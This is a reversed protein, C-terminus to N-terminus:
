VTGDVATSSGNIVLTGRPTNITINVSGSNALQAPTITTGGVVLDQLGDLTKFAVYSNVIDSDDPSSGSDLGSEYVMEETGPNADNDPINLIVGDDAGNITITLTTHTRNGDDDTITYTFVDTLTQGDGIGQVALNSNDLTYSYSGDAAINVSGYSGAVGAGVSGTGNVGTSGAAVGTIPTANADAGITDAGDTVVNGTVTNPVDDELISNTDAVAIPADDTVTVTIGASTSALDIDDIIIPFTLNLSSGGGHDFRDLLIFEYQQSAGTADATNQLEITFIDKVGDNATITHNSNSLAYDITNGDSTLGLATLTSITTATFTVDAIDDQARVINLNQSEALAPANPNTGAALNAEAVVGAAPAATPETDTVVIAQTVINSLDGNGDVLRYTFSAQDTYLDQDVSSDPTFEWAGDQNVTLIGTHTTVTYSTNGANFILNQLLSSTDTYTFDNLLAGDLGPTDNDMVNLGTIKAGGEVVTAFDDNAVPMGNIPPIVPDPEPEQDSDPDTTPDRPILAPRLALVPQPATPSQDDGTSYRGTGGIINEVFERNDTEDTGIVDSDLLIFSADAMTIVQGDHLLIEIEYTATSGDGTVYETISNPDVQIGQGADPALFVADGEFILDGDLLLRESGDSSQAIYKGNIKTVRGIIVQNAM